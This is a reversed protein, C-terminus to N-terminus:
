KPSCNARCEYPTRKVSSYSLEPNFTPDVPNPTAGSQSLFIHAFLTGNHQVTQNILFTLTLLYMRCLSTSRKRAVKKGIAWNSKKRLSCLNTTKFRLICMRTLTSGCTRCDVYTGSAIVMKTGLSWLAPVQDTGSITAPKVVGDTGSVEKQAGFKGGVFGSLANVAFYIAVFNLGTRWWPQGDQQEAAAPQANAM